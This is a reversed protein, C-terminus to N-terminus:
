ADNKNDLERKAQNVYQHALRCPEPLKHNVIYKCALELSSQMSVKHGPAIVIPRCGDKSKLLHGVQKGDYVLPAAQGTKEPWEGEGCLVNKTIGITPLDALVGIFSALGAVRPHNVGCGDVFLLTPKPILKKVARIAAPGERFFLFGPIYSFVISMMCSSQGAVELSPGLVVAGSIIRDNYFAQDVGAVYETSYSDELDVRSAVKRQVELLRNILFLRKSSKMGLISYMVHPLWNSDISTHM